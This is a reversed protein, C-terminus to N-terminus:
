PTPDAYKCSATPQRKRNVHIISSMQLSQSEATIQRPFSVQPLM